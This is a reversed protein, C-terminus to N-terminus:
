FLVTTIYGGLVEQEIHIERPTFDDEFFSERKDVNHNIGEEIKFVKETEFKSGKNPNNYKTTEITIIGTVEKIIIKAKYIRSCDLDFNIEWKVNFFSKSKVCELNDELSVIVHTSHIDTNFKFVQDM